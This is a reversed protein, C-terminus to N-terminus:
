FAGEEQQWVYYYSAVHEFNMKEWFDEAEALSYLLIPRTSRSLLDGIIQTGYGQGRYEEEITIEDLYLGDSFSLSHFLPYLIEGENEDDNIDDLISTNLDRLRKLVMIGIKKDELMLDYHHPCDMVPIVSVSTKNSIVM